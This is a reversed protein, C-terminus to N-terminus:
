QEQNPSRGCSVDSQSTAGNDAVPLIGTGCLTFKKHFLCRAQEYFCQAPRVKGSDIRDLSNM